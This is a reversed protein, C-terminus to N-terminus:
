LLELQKVAERPDLEPWARAHIFWVGLHYDLGIRDHRQTANYPRLWLDCLYDFADAGLESRLSALASEHTLISVTTHPHNRSRIRATLEETMRRQQTVTPLDLVGTM